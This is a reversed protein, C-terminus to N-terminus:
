HFVPNRCTNSFAMSSLSIGIFKYDNHKLAYLTKLNSLNKACWKCTPSFVYLVVPRGTALSVHQQNGLLDKVDLSAVRSGVAAIEPPPPTLLTDLHRIKLALGVNLAVSLMLLITSSSELIRSLWLRAKM